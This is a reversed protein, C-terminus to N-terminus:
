SQLARLLGPLRFVVKSLIQLGESMSLDKIEAVIQAGEKAEKLVVEVGDLLVDVARGLKEIGLKEM